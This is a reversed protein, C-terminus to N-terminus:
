SSRRTGEPSSSEAEGGGENVNRSAIRVKGSKEIDQRVGNDM